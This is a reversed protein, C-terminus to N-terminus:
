RRQKRVAGPETDESKNELRVQYDLPLLSAARVAFEQRRAEGQAMLIVTINACAILIVLGALSFIIAGLVVNGEPDELIVEKGKYTGPYQSAIRRAVTTLVAEARAKDVGDRLRVLPGVFLRGRQTFAQRAAAPAASFRIWIDMPLLDLGPERFGRPMIGVLSFPRGSLFLTRGVADSAGGLYRQWLSYSIVAPPQGEFHADSEQLTRGAMARAGLLSFYNESVIQM